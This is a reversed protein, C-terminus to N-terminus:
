ANKIFPNHLDFSSEPIVSGSIAGIMAIEFREIFKHLEEDKMNRIEFVDSKNFNASILNLVKQQLMILMFALERNVSETEGVGEAIKLLDLHLKWFALSNWEGYESLREYLSGEWDPHGPINREFETFM